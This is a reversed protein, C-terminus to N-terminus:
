RNITIEPYTSEVVDYFENIAAEKDMEGTKVATCAAGWADNIIKDFRTVKSFVPSKVSFTIYYSM